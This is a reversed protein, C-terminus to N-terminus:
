KQMFTRCAVLQSVFLLCCDVFIVVVFIVFLYFIERDFSHLHKLLPSRQTWLLCYRYLPRVSGYRKRNEIKNTTDSIRRGANSTGHGAM